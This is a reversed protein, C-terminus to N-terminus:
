WRETATPADSNQRALDTFKEGKRARDALAKAKKEAAAVKDPANDPTAVLIERLLVVEQRVFDAKHDDYYKQM